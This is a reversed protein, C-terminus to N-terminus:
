VCTGMDTWAGAAAWGVGPVYPGGQSCWGGTTCKWKRGVNKVEAGTAYTAGESYASAVCTAPTPAPTPAGTPVPTAATAITTVGVQTAISTEQKIGNADTWCVYISLNKANTLTGVNSVTWRRHPSSSTCDGPDAGSSLLSIDESRAQDIILQASTIAKARDNSYRVNKYLNGNFGALALLGVSLIVVSILVEILSFGLQSSKNRM